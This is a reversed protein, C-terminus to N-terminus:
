HRSQQLPRGHLSQGPAHRRPVSPGRRPRHPPLDASSTGHKANVAADRRGLLVASAVVTTFALLRVFGFVGDPLPEDFITMGAAIPISNTLLTALGATVLASGRQFGMQLLLTGVGYSVILAPALAIDGAVTAKTAIDGAAFAIGAAVGFAAGAGLASGGVAIVMTAAAASTGLWVALGLWSAESGQGAGGALSIGLLALGVISLGVGLRENRRLRALCFGSVLGALIGIGAASVGQM